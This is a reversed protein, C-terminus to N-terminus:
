NWLTTGEGKREHLLKALKNNYIKCEKNWLHREILPGYTSKKNNYWDLIDDISNM